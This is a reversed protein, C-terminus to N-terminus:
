YRIHGRKKFDEQLTPAPMYGEEPKETILRNIEEETTAYPELEQLLSDIQSRYKQYENEDHTTIVDDFLAHTVERGFERGDNLCTMYQISIAGNAPKKLGENVSSVFQDLNRRSIRTALECIDWILQAYKLETSDRVIFFSQGKEMAACFYYKEVLGKKWGRKSNPVDLVAWFGTAVQHYVNIDTLKKAYASDAPAGQFMDFTLKAGPQWFVHTETEIQAFCSISALLALLTIIRKM